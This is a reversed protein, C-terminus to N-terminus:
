EVKEQHINQKEKIVETIPKLKPLTTPRKSRKKAILIGAGLSIGAVILLIVWWEFPPSPEGTVVVTESAATGCVNGANDIVFILYEYTGVQLNTDVFSVLTTNAINTNNRYIHYTVNTLDAVPLWSLTVSNGIANGVLNAPTPPPTNDVYFSRILSTSLGDTNNATINIAYFGDILPTSNTFVYLGGMSGGPDVTLSWTTSDNTWIHAVPSTIGSVNGELDLIGGGIADYDYSPTTLQLTPNLKPTNNVLFNITMYSSRGGLDTVNIKIAYAGDMIASKNKIAFNGESLGVPNIIMEFQATDNIATATIISGTANMTGNVWLSSGTLTSGNTSPTSINISPPTSDVYFWHTASANENASDTINVTVTYKGDPLVSNNVFSFVGTLQGVPNLSLSFTTMNIMLASIPSGTGSVSGNIAISANTFVSGNIGPDTILLFPGAYDVYFWLSRKTSSGHSATVNIELSVKGTLPTNNSFQFFGAASGTPDVDIQFRSDNLTLNSILSGGASCLGDIRVQAQTIVTGNGPATITLAPTSLPKTLRKYFIDHDIGAGSYNSNDRWGIHIAMGETSCIVPYLSLGTSQDSVIRLDGWEGGSANWYRFFIDSDSGAGGYATLDSWVLYVNQDTDLAINPMDSDQTSETSIVQVATWAHSTANWIKYFIDQDTGAGSLNTADRWVVHIDGVLSIALSPFRSETTSENSVIEPTTWSQTSANWCKYIIDFDTGSGSINASDYWVLHINGAGDMAMNPWYSSSGSEPSLVELASWNGSVADRWRYCIDYDSGSGNYDTSDSWIFHANGNDEVLISPRFIDSTSEPTVVETPTWNLSTANWYKYFLDQDLGSGNYNTEDMWGVHINGSSDIAISPFTSFRTSETSLVETVTWNSTTINQLKHFIDVDTGSGNYVTQDEWVLHVDGGVDITIDPYGSYGTSETSVVEMATWNGEPHPINVTVNECNSITSNGTANGAVVVYYFMGNIILFDQYTTTPVSAIPDLGSVSLITSTSRYVHYISAGVSSSWNLDIYGDLDMAPLITELNPADPIGATRKYFIDTDTDAGNYDTEDQWVIHFHGQADLAMAPFEAPDTSETSILTPTSWEGSANRTKFFIDEWPGAGMYDTRDHWVAHITGNVGLALEPQRSHGTSEPSIVETQIWGQTTANFYKYFIDTDAQSGNYDTFDHWAIHINSSSDVLISATYSNGTSETSIVQTTSWLQSTANWSKHFIDADTGSGSYNTLDWWALHINGALDVTIAPDDSREDSEVSAVETTTWNSTTVNLRKYFIDIDDGCGSFNTYDYWAVHINGMSDSTMVPGYSNNISETSIVEVGSWIGTTSNRVKYFIDWDIGAGSLNTGDSWVLHINGEQDLTFDHGNTLSTSETSVVQTPIWAQLSANWFKYFIDFDNGSSNYDTGDEWSVHINLSDDIIISPAVSTSNSETSIVESVNWVTTARIFLFLDSIEQRNTEKPTRNTRIQNVLSFSLIFIIIIIILKRNNIKM